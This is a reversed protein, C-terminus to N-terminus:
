RPSSPFPTFNISNCHVPSLLHHFHLSRSLSHQHLLLTTISIQIELNLITPTHPEYKSIACLCNPLHRLGPASCNMAFTLQLHVPASPQEPMQRTLNKMKTQSAFYSNPLAPPCLGWPKTHPTKMNQHM